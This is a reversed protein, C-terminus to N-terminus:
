LQALFRLLIVITLFVFSRNFIPKQDPGFSKRITSERGDVDAKLNLLECAIPIYGGIAALQLATAGSRRAAPANVEAGNRILLEVIDISGIEAAKQLPTRKIPGSTPFNIDAGYRLLLEVKLADRTGVAVLLATLRIPPSWIESVISNPNCGKLLFLEMSEAISVQEKLIGIAYGFPTALGACQGDPGHIRVMKNADLGRDLMMSVDPGNGNMIAQLLVSSGFGRRGRPYRKDYRKLILELLEPSQQFAKELALSDNPDAGQDFLYRAMSVDGNEAAAELASVGHVQSGLYVRSMQNNVDAGSDLLLQVLVPDQRKMAIALATNSRKNERDDVNAGAFILAKVVSHDGWEAALGIASTLEDTLGYNSDADVDLLLHVLDANRRKLVQFLPPGGGDGSGCNADAGADILIKAVEDRGDRTAITLAHGLDRADMKVGVWILYEIFPVDGVESAARLAASFQVNDNLRALAGHEKIMKTIRVNQLRIAAALPTTNLDGISNINAGKELLFQVLDENGSAVACPLTDGTLLAGHSMLLTVVEFHGRRAAMDIVRRPTNRGHGDYFLPEFISVDHNLDAGVELMINVIEMSTRDDLSDIAKLFVGEKTWESMNKRAIVSFLLCVIEENEHKFLLWILHASVNGGAELLMRLIQPDRETRSSSQTAYSQVYCDLAGHCEFGEPKYEGYPENDKHDTGNVDAGHRMLCVIVDDHQLTSAREIPTCRRGEVFPIQHNIDIDAFNESLLLEVIRADGAEIAGKFLKKGIARSTYGPALRILEYLNQNTEKQLFHIIDEIPLAGLGAYNNAVSFLILRYLPSTFVQTGPLIASSGAIDEDAISQWVSKLATDLTTFTSSGPTWTDSATSVTSTADISPHQERTEFGLM